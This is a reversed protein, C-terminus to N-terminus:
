ESVGNLVIGHAEKQHRAFDGPGWWTRNCILCLWTM